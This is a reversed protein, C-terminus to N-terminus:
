FFKRVQALKEIGMTSWLLYVLPSPANLRVAYNRAKARSLWEQLAQVAPLDMHRLTSCDVEVVQGSEGRDLESLNLGMAGRVDGQLFWPSGMGAPASSEWSPTLGNWWHFYTLVTDDFGDMDGLLRYTELLCLIRLYASPNREGNPEQRPLLLTQLALYKGRAFLDVLSYLFPDEGVLVTAASPPAVPASSPLEPLMRLPDPNVLQSIPRIWMSTAPVTAPASPAQTPPASQMNAKAVHRPKTGATAKTTAPYWLSEFHAGIREIKELTQSSANQDRVARGRMGAVTSPTNADGRMHERLLAFERKRAGRLKSAIARKQSVPGLAKANGGAGANPTDGPTM